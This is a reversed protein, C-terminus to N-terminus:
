ASRAAMTPAPTSGDRGAAARASRRPHASRAAPEVPKAQAPLPHVSAAAAPSAGSAGSMFPSPAPPTTEAPPTPTWPVDVGATRLEELRKVAQEITSM